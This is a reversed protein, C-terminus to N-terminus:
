SRNDFALSLTKSDTYDLHGGMPIGAALKTIHTKGDLLKSIYMSTTNGEMTSDLALIVEKVKGDEVREALSDINLQEPLIGKRPNIVGNIVHYVGNYSEMKEIVALNKLNEVVCITEHDRSEDKCIDCIDEESLNGCIKCHKIEKLGKVSNIFNDLVNEDWDLAAYAYREATKMGVGPLRHFALILDEFKAPYMAM